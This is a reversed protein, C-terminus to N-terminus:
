SIIAVAAYDFAPDNIQLNQLKRSRQLNIRISRFNMVRECFEIIIMYVKDDGNINLACRIIINFYRIASNANPMENKFARIVCM